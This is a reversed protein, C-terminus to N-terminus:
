ILKSELLMELAKELGLELLTETVMGSVMELEV